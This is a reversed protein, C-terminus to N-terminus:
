RDAAAILWSQAYEVGELREFGTLTFAQPSMSVIRVDLLEPLLLEYIAPTDAPLLKATRVYRRLQEDLCEEIRLDGVKARQNAIAQWPIVRGRHRLFRVALHVRIGYISVASTYYKPPGSRRGNPLRKVALGATPACHWAM